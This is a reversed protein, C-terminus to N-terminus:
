SLICDCGPDTSSIHKSIPTRPTPTRDKIIQVTSDPYLCQNCNPSVPNILLWRPARSSSINEWTDAFKQYSNIPVVPVTSGELRERVGKWMGYKM